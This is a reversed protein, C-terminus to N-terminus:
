RKGLTYPFVLLESSGGFHGDVPGADDAREEMTALEPFRIYRLFLAQIHEM